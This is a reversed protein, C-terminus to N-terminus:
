AATPRAATPREKEMAAFGRWAVLAGAVFIVTAVYIPGLHLLTAFGYPYHLPLAVALALVASAVAYSWAWLHGIRVGSWALGIIAVGLAAVFGAVAVHLHRVYDMLSPSFANIEDGTKDVESTTIGLELNRGTFSLTLFLAAYAIFAVAAVTMLTAGRNLNRQITANMMFAGGAVMWKRASFGM